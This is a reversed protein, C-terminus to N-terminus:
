VHTPKIIHGQHGCGWMPTSLVQQLSGYLVRFGAIRVRVPRCIPGTGPDAELAGKRSSYAWFM